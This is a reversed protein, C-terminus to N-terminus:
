CSRWFINFFRVKLFVRFIWWFYFYFGFYFGDLLSRGSNIYVCVDLCVWGGVAMVRIFSVYDFLSGVVERLNM